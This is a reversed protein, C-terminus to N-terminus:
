RSSNFDLRSFSASDVEFEVKFFMAGGGLVIVPERRWFDEPRGRASLRALVNRDQNARNITDKLHAFHFFWVCIHKRRELLFGAYQRYYEHLPLDRATPERKIFPPLLHELRDIDSSTPEWTEVPGSACAFTILKRGAENPLIAGRPPEAPTPRSPMALAVAERDSVPQAFSSASAIATVALTVGALCRAPATRVNM